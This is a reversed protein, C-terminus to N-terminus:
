LMLGVFVEIAAAPPDPLIVTDAVPVLQLQVALRLSAQIVTVDPALPLPFPETANVTAAFLVPAARVPLMLTAPWVKETVCAGSGLEHM